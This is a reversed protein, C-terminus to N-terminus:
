TYSHCGSLTSFISERSRTSLRLWHDDRVRFPSANFCQQASFVYLTSADAVYFSVILRNGTLGYHPHSSVCTLALCPMALFPLALCPMALFWVTCPLSVKRRALDIPFYGETFNTDVTTASSEVGILELDDFYYGHEIEEGSDDIFFCSTEDLGTDIIQCGLPPLAPTVAGSTIQYM